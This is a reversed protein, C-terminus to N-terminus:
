LHFLHDQYLDHEVVDIFPEIFNRPPRRSSAKSSQIRQIRSTTSLYISVIGCVDCARQICRLPCNEDEVSMEFLLGDAEDFVIVMPTENSPLKSQDVATPAVTQVDDRVIKKEFTVYKRRIIKLLNSPGGSHGMKLLNQKSQPSFVSMNENCMSHLEGEGFFSNLGTYEGNVFQLDLLVKEGQMKKQLHRIFRLAMVNKKDLTDKSNIARAISIIEECRQYGTAHRACLVYM